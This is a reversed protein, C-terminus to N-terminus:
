LFLVMNYTGKQSQSKKKKESLMIEKLNRWTTAQTFPKNWKIVPDYEITYIDCLNKLWEGNCSMQTAGLTPSNHIFTSPTLRRKRQHVMLLVLLARAPDYSSDMGLKLLFLQTSRWLPHLRKLSSTSEKLFVLRASSAEWM